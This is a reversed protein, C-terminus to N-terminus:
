LLVYHVDFIYENGLTTIGPRNVKIVVLWKTQDAVPSYQSVRPAILCQTLNGEM